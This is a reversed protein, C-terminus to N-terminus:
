AAKWAENRLHGADIERDKWLGTHLTLGNSTEKSNDRRSDIVEVEIKLSKLFDIISKLRSESVKGKLKLM